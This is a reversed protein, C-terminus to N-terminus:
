SKEINKKGHMKKGMYNIVLSIPKGNEDLEFTLQINAAKAFFLTKSAPFFDAEGQEVLWGELVNGLNRLFLSGRPELKYEGEYKALTAPPLEIEKWELLTPSPHSFPITKLPELAPVPEPPRKKAELVKEALLWIPPGSVGESSDTDGRHVFVLEAEPIVLIIQGGTGIAAFKDYTNLVPYREPQRMGGKPYIWWM